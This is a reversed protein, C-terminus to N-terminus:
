HAEVGRGACLGIKTAIMFVTSQRDDASHFSIMNSSARRLSFDM